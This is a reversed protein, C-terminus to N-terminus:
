RQHEQELLRRAQDVHDAVVALSELALGTMGVLSSFGANGLEARASEIHDEIQEFVRYDPTPLHIVNEAM